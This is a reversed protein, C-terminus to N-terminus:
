KEHWSAEKEEAYVPMTVSLLFLVLVMISLVILEGAKVTKSQILSSFFTAKMLREGKAFQRIWSRTGLAKQSTFCRNVWKNRMVRKDRWENPFSSM